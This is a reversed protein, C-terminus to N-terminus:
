TSKFVMGSNIGGRIFIPVCLLNIGLKLNVNDINLIGKIILFIKLYVNISIIIYDSNKREM